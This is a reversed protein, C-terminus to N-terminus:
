SLPLTYSQLAGTKFFFSYKFVYIVVQTGYKREVQAQENRFSCISQFAMNLNNCIFIKNFIRKTKKQLKERINGTFHFM